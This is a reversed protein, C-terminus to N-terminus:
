SKLFQLIADAAEVPKELHPVHGCQDIIILESNKLEQKMLLANSQDLIKDDKGWIILCRQNVESLSKRFKFGGSKLFEFSAREWDENFCHLRGIRMADWTSFQKTNFYSIVNAYM